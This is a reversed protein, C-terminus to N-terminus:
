PEIPPLDPIAHDRRVSQPDKRRCRLRAPERVSREVRHLEMNGDVRQTIHRVAARAAGPNLQLIGKIRGLRTYRRQNM